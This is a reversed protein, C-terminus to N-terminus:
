WDARRPRELLAYLKRAGAVVVWWLRGVLVGVAFLAVGIWVPFGSVALGAIAGAAFTHGHHWSTM